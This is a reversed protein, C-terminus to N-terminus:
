EFVVVPEDVPEVVQVDNVDMEKFFDFCIECRKKSISDRKNSIYEYWSKFNKDIFEGIIYYCKSFDSTDNDKKESELYSSISEPVEMSFSKGDIKISSIKIFVNYDKLFTEANYGIFDNENLIGVSWYRIDADSIPKSSRCDITPCYRYGEVDKKKYECEFHIEDITGKLPTIRFGLSVDKLRGIYQWYEKYINALEIKAYNDLSNKDIYKKWYDIISDAKPIYVKYGDEFEKDWQRELKNWYATDAQFKFYDFLKRYTLKLFRAKEVDDMKEVTSVVERYFDAFEKDSEMAKSLEIENLKQSVPKDPINNCGVIMVAAVVVLFVKKM